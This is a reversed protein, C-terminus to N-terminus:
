TSKRPRAHEQRHSEHSADRRPASGPPMSQVTQDEACLPEALVETLRRVDCYRAAPAALPSEFSMPVCGALGCGLESGLHYRLPFALAHRRTGVSMDGPSPFREHRRRELQGATGSEACGLRAHQEGQRLGPDRGIQDDSRRDPRHVTGPERPCRL